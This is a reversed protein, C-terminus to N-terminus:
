KTPPTPLPMWHTVYDAMKLTNHHVLWLNDEWYLKDIQWYEKNGCRDTMRWCLYYGNKKPKDDEVSIWEGFKLLAKERVGPYFDCKTRDGGCSCEDRERTGNCKHVITIKPDVPTHWGIIKEETCYCDCKNM